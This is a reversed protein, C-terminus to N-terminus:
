QGPDPAPNSAEDIKVVASVEAELRSLTAFGDSFGGTPPCDFYMAGALELWDTVTDDIAIDSTPLLAPRHIRLFALGEDCLSRPNNIEVEAESPIGTSVRDWEVQWEESSPRAEACSVLFLATLLFGIPKM